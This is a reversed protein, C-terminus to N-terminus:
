IYPNVFSIHKKLNHEKLDMKKVFKEPCFQCKFTHNRSFHSKLKSAHVFVKPCVSCKEMKTSSASKSQKNEKNVNELHKTFDVNKVHYQNKAGQHTSSCHKKLDIPEDFSSPCLSCQLKNRYKGEHVTSLVDHSDSRGHSFIIEPKLDTKSKYGEKIKTEPHAKTVHVNMYEVETFKKPCFPCKSSHFVAVHENMYKKKVFEPCFKCKCISQNSKEHVTSFPKNLDLITHDASPDASLDASTRRDDRELPDYKVISVKHTSATYKAQKSVEHETTCHEKLDLEEDYVAPCISCKIKVRHKGEHATIDLPDFSVTSLALISDSDRNCFVIESNELKEHEDFAKAKINTESVEEKIMSFSMFKTNEASPLIFGQDILEDKIHVDENLVNANETSSTVMSENRVQLEEHQHIFENEMEIKVENM